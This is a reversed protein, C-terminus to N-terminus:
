INFFYTLFPYHISFSASLPTEGFWTTTVNLDANYDILLKIIGFNCHNIAEILGYHTGFKGPYEEKITPQNINIGTDLYNKITDFSANNKLLFILKDIAKNQKHLCM